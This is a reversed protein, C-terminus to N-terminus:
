PDKPTTEQLLELNRSVEGRANTHTPFSNFSKFASATQIDYFGSKMSSKIPSSCSFNAAYYVLRSRLPLVGGVALSGLVVEVRRDKAIQHLKHWMVSESDATAALIAESAHVSGELIHTFCKAAHCGKCTIYTGHLAQHSPRHQRPTCMRPKQDLQTLTRPTSSCGVKEATSSGLTWLAKAAEFVPIDREM